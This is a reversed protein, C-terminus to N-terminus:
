MVSVRVRLVVEHRFLLVGAVTAGSGHGGDLPMAPKVVPEISKLPPLKVAPVLADPGGEIPLVPKLVPMAKQPAPAVIVDPGGEIPM